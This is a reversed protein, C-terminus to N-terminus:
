EALKSTEPGHGRGEGSGHHFPMEGDAFVPKGGYDNAEEGDQGEFMDKEDSEGGFVDHRPAEEGRGPGEGSHFWGETSVKLKSNDKM